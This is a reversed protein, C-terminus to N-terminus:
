YELASSRGTFDRWIVSIKEKPYQKLSDPSYNKVSSILSISENKYSKM